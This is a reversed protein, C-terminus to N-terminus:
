SMVIGLKTKGISTFVQSMPQIGNAFTMFIFRRYREAFQFYLDSGTGFISVIQHSIVPFLPFYLQMATCAIMSYRYATKGRRIKQEM